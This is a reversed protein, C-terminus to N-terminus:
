PRARGPRLPVVEQGLELPGLLLHADAQHALIDRQLIGVLADVLAQQVGTGVMVAAELEVVDVALVDVVAVDLLQQRAVVADNHCGSESLAADLALIHGQPPATLVIHGGEADAQAHLAHDDLKGAVHQAQGIGVAGLHVGLRGVVDDVQHLVLLRDGVQAARHAQAGIGAADLRAGLNGLGIALGVDLLAVAVAKLEVVLVALLKLCAPMVMAPTLGSLPRASTMSSVPWRQYMPVWYWGSYELVTRLGWGSKMDKMAAM